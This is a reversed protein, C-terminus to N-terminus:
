NTISFSTKFDEETFRKLSGDKFKVIWDGEKVIDQNASGKNIWPLPLYDKIDWGHIVTYDAIFDVLSDSSTEENYLEHEGSKISWFSFPYLVRKWKDGNDNEIVVWNESFINKNNEKEKDTLVGDIKNIGLWYRPMSSTGSLYAVEKNLSYVVELPSLYVENISEGNRFWQKAWEVNLEIKM